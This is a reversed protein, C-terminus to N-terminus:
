KPNELIHEGFKIVFVGTYAKTLAAIEDKYEAPMGPEDHAFQSWKREPDYKTRLDKRKQVYEQYLPEVEIRMREKKAEEEAALKAAKAAQWAKWKPWLLVLLIAALLIAIVAEM